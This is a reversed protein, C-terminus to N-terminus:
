ELYSKVKAKKKKASLGLEKNYIVLVDNQPPPSRNM